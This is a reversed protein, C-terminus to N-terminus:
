LFSFNDISFNKEICDIWKDTNDKFFEIRELSKKRYFDRLNKNEILDKMAKYLEIEEKTLPEESSCYKKNGVPVLIGYKENNSFLIERNGYDCDTAIIPLGVAMAELISNSCGEFLSSCVFIESKKLYKYPNSVFDLLFVNENLKLENILKQLYEKEKGRGFIVLKYNKYEEVIKSFAKILHWQGKQEIYRGLSIIVKGDKFIEKYKDIKEKSAENIKDLDCTNYISIIKNEPVNNNEIYFKRMDESVTVINDAKRITFKNIINELKGKEKINNRISIIVKDNKKSLINVLNPGTLLSITCDIKYEKKIKKLLYIRKFFNFIKKAFNSTIHTKLDIIHAKTKYDQISNDFVILYVNYKNSLKEALVSSVREAGGNSLKTTLIAINKKM